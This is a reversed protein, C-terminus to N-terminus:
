HGSCKDCFPEKNHTKKKTFNNKIWRFFFLFAGLLLIGIIIYQILLSNEM